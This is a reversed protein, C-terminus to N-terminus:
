GAIKRLFDLVHAACDDPADAITLHGSAPLVAPPPCGPWLASITEATDVTLYTSGSAWIVSGPTKMTPLLAPMLSSDFLNKRAEAEAARGPLENYDRCERALQDFWEDGHPRLMLKRLRREYAAADTGDGPAPPQPPASTSGRPMGSATALVVGAVRDPHAQAAVLAPTGSHSQGILVVQTLDLVELFEGIARAYSPASYDGDDFGGSLGHGPLDLRVVRTQTAVKRAFADYAGAGLWQAPLLIVTPLPGPSGDELWHIRSTSLRIFNADRRQRRAALEALDAPQPFLPM